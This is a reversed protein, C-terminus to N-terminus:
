GDRPEGDVRLELNADKRTLELRDGPPELTAPVARAQQTEAPGAERM